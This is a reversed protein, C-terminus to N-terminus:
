AIHDTCLPQWWLTIGTVLPDHDPDQLQLHCQRMALVQPARKALRHGCIHETYRLPEDFIGVWRRPRQWLHRLGASGRSCVTGCSAVAPHAVTAGALCGPGLHARRQRRAM